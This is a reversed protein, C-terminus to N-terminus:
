AAMTYTHNNTSSTISERSDSLRFPHIIEFKLMVKQGSFLQELNQRNQDFVVWKELMRKDFTKLKETFRGSLTEYDIM